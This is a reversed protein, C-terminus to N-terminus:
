RRLISNTVLSSDFWVSLFCQSNAVLRQILHDVWVVVEERSLEQDGEGERAGVRSDYVGSQHILLLLCPFRRAEVCNQVDFCKLVTLGPYLLLATRSGTYGGTNTPGRVASSLTTIQSHLMGQLVKQAVENRPGRRGGRAGVRGDYLGSQHILLFGDPRLVTNFM